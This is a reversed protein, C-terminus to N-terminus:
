RAFWVLNSILLISLLIISSTFKNSKLEDLETKLRLVESKKRTVVEDSLEALIKKTIDEASLSTVALNNALTFALQFAAPVSHFDVDQIDYLSVRHHLSARTQLCLNLCFFRISHGEGDPLLRHSFEHVYISKLDDPAIARPKTPLVYEKQIVIEGNETNNEESCWGGLGSQPADILLIDAPKKINILNFFNDSFVEQFEKPVEIKQQSLFEM